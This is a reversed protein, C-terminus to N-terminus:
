CECEGDHRRNFVTRALRPLDRAEVCPDLSKRIEFAQEFAERGRNFVRTKRDGRKASSCARSSPSRAGGSKISVPSPLAVHADLCGIELMKQQSRRGAVSARALARAFRGLAARRNQVSFFYFDHACSFLLCAQQARGPNVHVCTCGADQALAGRTNLARADLGVTRM